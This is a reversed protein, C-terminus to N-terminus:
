DTSSRVKLGYTGPELGPRGVMRTRISHSVVEPEGLEPIAEVMDVLSGCQLESWERARRRYANIMQSSRHGTRDAVWSETAGNALSVTVFTARLDHVRVMIRTENHVFLEARTVGATQLDRRFAKALCSMELPVRREALVAESDEPEGQRAKWMSLAEVVDARLVWSRPDDTKNTDLRVRGRELDVDAWTLSGIESARMGERALMAYALRRQLPVAKCGLLKADEEPWICEKAKASKGSPVWGRPIPNDARHRGPYVALSLVRRLVQAVHRRTAPALKRSPAVKRSIGVMVREAHELTVADIPLGGIVDNIYLRLIEADRGSDKSKVHDPHLEHLKGSTWDKAFAEFTPAQSGLERARGGVITEVAEVVAEWPPGPRADAAMKMVDGIKAGHGSRRLRAAMNAMAACRERAAEEQRPGFHKLDFARRKDGEVTVLASWGEATSRLTGTAPKPM